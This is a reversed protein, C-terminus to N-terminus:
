TKQIKIQYAKNKKKLNYHTNNSLTNKILTYAEIIIYM